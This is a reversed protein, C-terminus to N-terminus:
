AIVSELAHGHGTTLVLIATIIARTVTKIAASYKTMTSLCWACRIFM